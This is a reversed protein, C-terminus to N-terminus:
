GIHTSASRLQCRACQEGDADAVKSVQRFIPERQDFCGFAQLSVGGVLPDASMDHFELLRCSDFLEDDREHILVIRGLRAAVADEDVVDM